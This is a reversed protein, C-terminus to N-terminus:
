VLDNKMIFYIKNSRYFGYFIDELEINRDNLYNILWGFDKNIYNLTDYQIVGDLILPLPNYEQVDLFDYEFLNLSGDNELIAYEIDSIDKVKNKRLELALDDLSYRQKQMETKNIKGNKIILSPKGDMLNRFKNSKLALTGTIIELLFLSVIPIITLFMSDKYNEISIACLEAILINVVLDQVSLQGIERKGMLRIVVIMIFYFLITRFLVCIFDMNDGNNNHNLINNKIM